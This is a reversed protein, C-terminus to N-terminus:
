GEELVYYITYGFSFPNQIVNHYQDYLVSYNQPM